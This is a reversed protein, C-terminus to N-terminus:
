IIRELLKEKKFYSAKNYLDIYRQAVNDWSFDASMANIQIKKWANKNRYTELARVMQGYLSWGDFDRFKFGNGELTAPNFDNVTDDLGGTSRVIPVAGYRMAEMQVLGCPEFRSPMLIVDAGGFVLKPLTFNAYTHVGVSGKFETQLNQAAKEYGENGSGILVFQADFDKLFKEVVELMLDVGKMHELRGVFGFVITDLDEDLGFEKQLKTKNLTRKDISKVDYKYPLLPDTLPNFKETDIGNIIGFLKSRLELLLKDLGCGYEPTLIQRAYGESVTNVLDAYLIGRKLFNVAKLRDSYVMPIPSRGDDFKLQSTPDISQGQYNINHITHICVTNEFCPDKRYETKIINPVLGTHWDHSHVVDPKWDLHKAIFQLAGYSLLTWRIHDDSYGYVNSRKEYYEMNELFYYTVGEETQFKKINCILHTPKNDEKTYGTPVKLGKYILELPYKKEDIFGFRPIFVRVDNGEKHLAKSLYTIVSSLGGVSSFPTAEAAIHLIKLNQANSNSMKLFTLM